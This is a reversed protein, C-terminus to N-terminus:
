NVNGYHSRINFMKGTGIQSRWMKKPLTEPCIANKRDGGRKKCSVIQNQTNKIRSGFGKDSTHNAFVKKRLSAKTKITDKPSSFM